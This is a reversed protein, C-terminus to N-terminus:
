KYFPESYFVNESVFFINKTCIKFSKKKQINIVHHLWTNLILKYLQFLSYFRRVYSHFM